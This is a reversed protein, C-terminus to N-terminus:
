TPMTDTKTLTLDDSEWCEAEANYRFSFDFAPGQVTLSGDAIDLSCVLDEYLRQNYVVTVTATSEKANLSPSLATIHIYIGQGDTYIGAADEGRYTLREIYMVPKGDRLELKWGDEYYLEYYGTFTVFDSEYTTYLCAAQEEKLIEASFRFPRDYRFLIPESDASEVVQLHGGMAKSDEVTQMVAMFQSLDVPPEEVQKDTDHFLDLYILGCLVGLTLLLCVITVVYGKRM